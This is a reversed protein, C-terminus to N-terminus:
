CKGSIVCAGKSSIISTIPAFSGTPLNVVPISSSKTQILLIPDSILHDTAGSDLIWPKTFASNISASSFPSLGVANAYANNGSSQNSSM